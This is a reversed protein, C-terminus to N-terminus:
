SAARYSPGVLATFASVATSGALLGVTAMAM